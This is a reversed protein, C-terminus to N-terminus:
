VPLQGNEILKAGWFSGSMRSHPVLVRAASAIRVVCGHPAAGLDFGVRQARLVDWQPGASLSGAQPSTGGVHGRSRARDGSEIGHRSREVGSRSGCAIPGTIATSSPPPPAPVLALGIGPSPFRRLCYRGPMRGDRETRLRDHNGQLVHLDHDPSVAVDIGPNRGGVGYGCRGGRATYTRPFQRRSRVRM